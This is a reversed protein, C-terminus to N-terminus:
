LQRPLRALMGAVASKITAALRDRNGLVGELSDQAWGRWIVRNTRADVLDLILTGAEYETVRADCAQDYCYGNERDVRNVDIRHAINAHYHILLDPHGSWDHELGKATLGKEVAGLMNDQFFPDQDLRPDGSPLTDPPGWDFTRYHAFDLGPAVHSGVSITACAMASQALMAGAALFLLRRM